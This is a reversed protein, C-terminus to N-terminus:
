KKISLQRELYDLKRYPTSNGVTIELGVCALDLSRKVGVVRSSGLSIGGYSLSAGTGLAASTLSTDQEASVARITCTYVGTDVTQKALYDDAAAQLAAQAAGIASDNEDYLASNIGYISYRGLPKLKDNPLLMSYNENPIIGFVVGDEGSDKIALEFEMGALTASNDFAIHLTDELFDRATLGPFLDCQFAYCLWKRGTLEGNSDKEDFSEPDGVETIEGGFHPYIDDFKVQAEVADPGDAGAIAVLRREMNLAIGEQITEGTYNYFWSYPVRGMSVGLTDISATGSQEFCNAEEDDVPKMGPNWRGLATNAYFVDTSVAKYACSGTEVVVSGESPVSQGVVTIVIAICPYTSKDKEFVVEDLIINQEDETHEPSIQLTCTGILKNMKVNYLAEAAYAQVQLTAQGDVSDSRVHVKNVKPTDPVIRVHGGITDNRQSGSALVITYEKAGDLSKSTGTPNAFHAWEYYIRSSAKIMDGTVPHEPDYYATNSVNPISPNIEMEATANIQPAAMGYRPSMNRTGGMAIVRTAQKEMTRSASIAVVNTQDLSIGGGEGGEGLKGINITGNSCWWEYYGNGDMANVLMNLADICNTGDFSLTIYKQDDDEGDGPCSGASWGCSSCIIALINKPTDTIPFVTAPLTIGVAKWKVLRNALSMWPAKYQVDYSYSGNANLTPAYGADCFYDTYGALPCKDGQKIIHLQSTNFQLSVYEDKQLEVKYYSGKNLTVTEGGITIQAM